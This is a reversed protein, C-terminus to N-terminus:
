DHSMEVWIQYVERSPWGSQQAVIKAARKGFVGAERLEVLAARVQEVEWATQEAEAWGIVLTFEGRPGAAEFHDIAEALTGRWVEEYLKTLERAVAVPRNGLVTLADNLSDLVRHPSEFAVLTVPLAAVSQFLTRREAKRRPLFGLYMFKDTPLGSVALASILASPGPVPVVPIGATIADRILDFGPDSIGPMGAESVLAVDQGSLVELLHQRKEPGSFDHFSTLPTHIDYHTLLKRTTRTDEAAILKVERLVRLARLTVDELNGIPTAVVFLTGITTVELYALSTIDNKSNAFLNPSTM